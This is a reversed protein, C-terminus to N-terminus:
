AIKKLLSVLSLIVPSEFINKIPPSEYSAHENSHNEETHPEFQVIEGDSPNRLTPLTM